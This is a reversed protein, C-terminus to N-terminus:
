LGSRLGALLSDGVLVHRKHLDLYHVKAKALGVSRHDHCIGQCSFEFACDCGTAKDHRLQFHYFPALVLESLYSCIHHSNEALSIQMM